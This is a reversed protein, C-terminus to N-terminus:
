FREQMREQYRTIGQDWTCSPKQRATVNSARWLLHRASSIMFTRLCFNWLFFCFHLFALPLLIVFPSFLFGLASLDTLIIFLRGYHFLRGFLKLLIFDFAQEIVDTSSVISIIVNIFFIPIVDSCFSWFLPCLFPLRCVFLWPWLSALLVKMWKKENKAPNLKASMKKLALKNNVLQSILWSFADSFFCWPPFRRSPISSSSGAVKAASGPKLLVISGPTSSCRTFSHMDKRASAWLTIQCCVKGKEVKSSGLTETPQNFTGLFYMVNWHQSRWNRLILGLDIKHSRVLAWRQCANVNVLCHFWAIRSTFQM